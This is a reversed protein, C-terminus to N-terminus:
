SLWIQTPWISGTIMGYAKKGSPTTPNNFNQVKPQAVVTWVARDLWAYPIDKAFRDNVQQYAKARANSKVAERGATLAAQVKPDNNRAMNIALSGVPGVTTTSWFIYNLDPEVAGFQRWQSVQYKGILANNILENQQFTSLSVKMGVAQLQQQLYQAARETTPSSVGSLTFSLPKGTAKEVEKVLKKAGQPDYSPYGPNSYYPTGSVFPGNAPPNVGLDITKAYGKTNIAKALALRAKHNNFPPAATNILLCNVDPEGVLKGSDDVYSWQSKGRFQVTVQPTDNVMMDISGSQLAQARSQADPIPRFIIENLHPLGKRWYNPNRTASFHDNPIWTKFVFPGTGIPHDTGNPNKLMAPAVPYAIQGGIGGALYYPFAVWPEKFNAVVTLAGTQTFNDLIPNIAPGTLASSKHADFNQLLAAGDCPTGDHFKLNPRLTVTWSSYDANPTVSQALYPAVGGSSTIITLPDFVTRAYMVGVEDFRATTPLFGQEEADTGFQLRGGKKPKATSIGNRGKGNTKGAAVGSGILEVGAGAAAM